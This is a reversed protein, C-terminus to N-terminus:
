PDYVEVLQDDPPNSKVKVQARGYEQEAFTLIRPGSKYAKTSQGQVILQLLLAFLIGTLKM